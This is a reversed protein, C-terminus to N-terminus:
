TLLVSKQGGLHWRKWSARDAIVWEWITGPDKTQLIVNAAHIADAETRIVAFTRTAKLDVPRAVHKIFIGGSFGHRSRYERQQRTTPIHRDGATQRGGN